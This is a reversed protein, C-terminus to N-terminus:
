IPVQAFIQDSVVGDVRVQLRQLRRLPADGDGEQLPRVAQEGLMQVGEEEEAGVGPSHLLQQSVHLLLRLLVDATPHGADQVPEATWGDERGRDGGGQGVQGTPHAGQATAGGGAARELRLQQMRHQAVHEGVGAQSRRM